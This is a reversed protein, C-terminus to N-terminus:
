QSEQQTQSPSISSPSRESLPQIVFSTPGDMEAVVIKEGPKLSWSSNTRATATTLRGGIMVEIQGSGENRAPVTSYVTGTLGVATDYKRTGDSQMRWLSLMLFYMAAMLLGGAGTALPVALLLPAGQELAIAGTWGFGLFFAAITHVSFIGLGTDHGLDAAGADVDLGAGDMGDGGIGLLVLLVQITVVLLSIIGIGYFIQKDLNLAEWWDIM